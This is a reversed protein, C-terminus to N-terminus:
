ELNSQLRTLNWEPYFYYKLSNNPNQYPVEGLHADVNNTKECWECELCGAASTLIRFPFKQISPTPYVNQLWLPWISVTEVCAPPVMKGLAVLLTKSTQPSSASFLTQHLCFVKTELTQIYCNGAVPGCSKCCCTWNTKATSTCWVPGQFTKEEASGMKHWRYIFLYITAPLQCHSGTACLDYNADCWTSTVLISNNELNQRWEKALLVRKNAGLPFNYYLLFYPACECSM